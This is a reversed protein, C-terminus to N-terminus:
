RNQDNCDEQEAYERRGDPYELYASRKEPDFRAVPNGNRIHDAIADEIARKIIQQEWRDYLEFIIKKIMKM